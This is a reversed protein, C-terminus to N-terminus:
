TQSCSCLIWSVLLNSPCSAVQRSGADLAYDPLALSTSTWQKVLDTPSVWCEAVCVVCVCKRSITTSALSKMAMIFTVTSPLYGSLTLYMSWVGIVWTVWGLHKIQSACLWDVWSYQHSICLVDSKCGSDRHTSFHQGWEKYEFTIWCSPNCHGFECSVLRCSFICALDLGPHVFHFHM